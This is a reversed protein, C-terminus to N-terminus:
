LGRLKELIAFLEVLSMVQPVPRPKGTYTKKIAVGGKRYWDAVNKGWDDILISRNIPTKIYESKDKGIETMIINEETISPIHYKLWENKEATCYPNDLCASLIYINYGIDQLTKIVAPAEPYCPINKFFGRIQMMRCAKEEEGYLSFIGLTNDMDFYLSIENPSLKQESFKRFNEQITQELGDYYGMFKGGKKNNQKQIIPNNHRFYLWM